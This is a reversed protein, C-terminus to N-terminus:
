TTETRKRDYNHSISSHDKRGFEADIVVSGVSSQNISSCQYSLLWFEKHSFSKVNKLKKRVFSLFSKSKLLWTLM